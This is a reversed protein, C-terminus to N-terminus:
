EGKLKGCEVVQPLKLLSERLWAFFRQGSSSILFATTASLRTLVIFRLAFLHEFRIRKEVRAHKHCNKKEGKKGTVAQKLSDKGAAAVKRAFQAEAHFDAQDVLLM